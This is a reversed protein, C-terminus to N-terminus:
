AAPHRPFREAEAFSKAAVVVLLTGPTFDDLAITVGAPVFLGQRPTDLVVAITEAVDALKV